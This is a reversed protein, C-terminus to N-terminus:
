EVSTENDDHHISFKLTIINGSELARYSTELLRRQLLDMCAAEAPTISFFLVDFLALDEEVFLSKRTNM